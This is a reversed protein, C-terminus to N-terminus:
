YVMCFLLPTVCLVSLLNRKVRAYRDFSSCRRFPWPFYSGRPSRRKRPLLFSRTIKALVSTAAALAPLVQLRLAAPVGRWRIGWLSTTSSHQAGSTQSFWGPWSCCSWSTGFLFGSIWLSALWVAVIQLHAEIYLIAALFDPCRAVFRGTSWPICSWRWSRPSHIPDLLGAVARRRAQALEGDGAGIRIQLTRAGMRFHVTYLFGM